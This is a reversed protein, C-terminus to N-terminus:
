FMLVFVLFCFGMLNLDIFFLTYKWVRKKRAVIEYCQKQKNVYTITKSKIKVDGVISFFGRASEETFFRKDIGRQLNKYFNPEIEVGDGAGFAKDSMTNVRAILTGNPILIRKIENMIMTTTKTDFYHLSLDAIVYSFTNDDFKKWDNYKGIDFLMANTNFEKVRDIASKSFDVSMVEFGQKQLWLTDYGNGCGLDLIPHNTDYMDFQHNHLWEEYTERVFNEPLKKDWYNSYNNM